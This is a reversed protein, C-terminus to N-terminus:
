QEAGSGLRSILMRQCPGIETVSLEARIRYIAEDQMPNWALLTREDERVLRQVFISLHAFTDDTSVDGLQYGDALELLLHFLEAGLRLREEDKGNRYRYVLVAQRHLWDIGEVDAPLDAELQFASLPKEVWFATETPTRPTVRLPVVGVRELAQPPLDELRSIGKCLLACVESLERDDAM